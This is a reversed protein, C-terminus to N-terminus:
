LYIQSSFEKELMKKLLKLNHKRQWVIQFIKWHFQSHQFEYLKSFQAATSMELESFRFSHIISFLLLAHAIYIREICTYTLSPTLWVTSNQPMIEVCWVMADAFMTRFLMLRLVMNMNTTLESCINSLVISLGLYPREEDREWISLWGNHGQMSLMWEMKVRLAGFNHDNSGCLRFMSRCDM